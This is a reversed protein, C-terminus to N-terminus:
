ENRLAESPTIMAALKAPWYSFVMGVIVAVIVPIALDPNGRIHDKSKSPHRVQKAKENEQREQEALWDGQQLDQM